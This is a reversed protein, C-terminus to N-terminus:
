WVGTIHEREASAMDCGFWVRTDVLTVGKTTFDQTRRHLLRGVTPISTSVCRKRNLPNYTKAFDVSRSRL